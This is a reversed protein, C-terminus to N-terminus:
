YLTCLLPLNGAKSDQIAKIAAKEQGFWVFGYGKSTHSDAHLSLKASKIIGYDRFMNFFDQSDLCKDLGKVFLNCESFSNDPLM